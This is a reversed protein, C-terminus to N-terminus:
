CYPCTMEVRMKRSVEPCLLPTPNALNTYRLNIFIYM